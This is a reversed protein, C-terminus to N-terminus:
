DFLTVLIVPTQPPFHVHFVIKVCPLLTHQVYLIDKTFTLVALIISTKM